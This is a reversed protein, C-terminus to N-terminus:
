PWGPATQNKVKEQIFLCFSGRHQPAFVISFHGKFFGHKKPPHKKKGLSGWPGELPLTQKFRYIAPTPIPGWFSALGKLTWHDKPNISFFDSKQCNKQQNPCNPLEGPKKTPHSNGNKKWIGEPLSAFGHFVGINGPLYWWFPAHKMAIAINVPPYPVNFVVTKKKKVGPSKETIKEPPMSSAGPPGQAPVM